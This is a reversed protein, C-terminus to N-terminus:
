ITRDDQWAGQDNLGNCFSCATEIGSANNAVSFSLTLTTPTQGPFNSTSSPLYKEYAINTFTFAPTSSPNSCSPIPLLTNYYAQFPFSLNGFALPLLLIAICQVGMKLPKYNVLVFM